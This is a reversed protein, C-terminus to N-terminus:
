RKLSQMHRGRPHPHNATNDCMEAAENVILAVDCNTNLKRSPYLLCSSSVAMTKTGGADCLLFICMFRMNHKATHDTVLQNLQSM